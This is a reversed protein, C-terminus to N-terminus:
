LSLSLPLPPPSIRIYVALPPHKPDSVTTSAFGARSSPKQLWNHAHAVPLFLTSSLVVAGLLALSGSGSHHASAAFLLASAGLLANPLAARPAANPVAASPQPQTRDTADDDLRRRATAKCPCIRRLSDASASNCKAKAGGNPCRGADDDHFWCTGVGSVAITPADLDCSSLIPLKCAVTTSIAAELKAPDVGESRLVIEDCERNDNMACVSDCSAGNSQSVFWDAGGGRPAAESLSLDHKSVMGGPMAPSLPWFFAGGNTYGHKILVRFTVNGVGPEKPARWHFVNHFNKLRVDAHMLAKGDCGPDPPTWFLPPSEAIIEWEGIKTEADDVAYILIGMFKSSEWALIENGTPQAAWPHPKMCHASKKYCKGKGRPELLFAPEYEGACKAAGNACIQDPGLSTGTKVNWSWGCMQTFGHFLMGLTPWCAFMGAIGNYTRRSETYRQTTRLHLTVLEGPRYTSPDNAVDALARDSTRLQYLPNRPSERRLSPDVVTIQPAGVYHM